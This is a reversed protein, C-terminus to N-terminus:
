EPFVCTIKSRNWVLFFFRTVGIQRHPHKAVVSATTDDNAVRRYPRRKRQRIFFLREHRNKATRELGLQVFPRPRTM